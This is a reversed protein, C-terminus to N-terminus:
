VQAIRSLPKTEHQPSPVLPCNPLPPVDCCVEGVSVLLRPVPRVATAIDEPIYWVQAMRSLPSTEHQPLPPPPLNPLPSVDSLFVGVRVLLRPVPRVAIAIAEPNAWVQAMRSLPAVDQQPTPDTPRNPLPPVDFWFKGVGV